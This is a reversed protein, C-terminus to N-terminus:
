AYVREIRDVDIIEAGVEIDKQLGGNKAAASLDGGRKEIPRIDVAESAM